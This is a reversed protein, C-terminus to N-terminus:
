EASKRQEDNGQRVTLVACDATRVVREAVSGMLLRAAGTRGQTGMVIVDVNKENAFRIIEAAPTGLAVHREFPVGAVTPELECIAHMDSYVPAPLQGHLGIGYPAASQEVYLFHLKAGTAKALRSAFDIAHNPSFDVPCLVQKLKV